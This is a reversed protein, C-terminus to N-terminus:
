QVGVMQWDFSVSFIAYIFVDNSLTGEDDADDTQIVFLYLPAFLNKREAILFRREKDTFSVFM